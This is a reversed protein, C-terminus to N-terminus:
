EEETAQRFPSFIGIDEIIESPGPLISLIDDTRLGTAKYIPKSTSRKQEDLLFSQMDSVDSKSPQFLEELFFRFVM